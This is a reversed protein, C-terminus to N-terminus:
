ADEEPHFEGDGNVFAEGKYTLFCFVGEVEIFYSKTDKIQFEGPKWKKAGRRRVKFHKDTLGTAGVIEKSTSGKVHKEVPTWYIGHIDSNEDLERIESYNRETGDKQFQPLFTGDTKEAVWIYDLKELEERDTNELNESFDGIEDFKEFVTDDFDLSM